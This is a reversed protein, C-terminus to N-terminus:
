SGATSPAKADRRPRVAVYSKTLGLFRERRIECDPFLEKVERYTLLRYEEVLEAVQAGSPRYALGYVTFNRGLKVQWRKPLWHIFPTLWHPEFVFERAPTQMWIGDGVRRMEGAFARQQEWTHVHEITSNSFCIDFSGDPYELATGDGEVYRMNAPLDPSEAPVVINLLTIDARSDVLRWNSDTGGVDLITAGAGEGFADVFERM